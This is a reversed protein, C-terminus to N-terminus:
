DPLGKVGPELQLGLSNQFMTLMTYNGVILVVEVLQNGTYRQALASWTADTVFRSKHLEDAARLLVADFSSWKADPGQPIRSIEEDTLGAKKGTIAHRGWVFDGRSLWATRLILLEKDRLPITYGDVFHSSFASFKRCMDLNVPCLAQMGSAAGEHPKIRTTTLRTFPEVRRVPSSEIVREQAAHGIRPGDVFLATALVGGVLAVVAKKM